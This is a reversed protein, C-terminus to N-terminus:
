RRTRRSSRRPANEAGEVPNEALWPAVKKFMQEDSEGEPDLEVARISGGAYAVVISSAHREIAPLVMKKFSELSNVSQGKVPHGDSLWPLEDLRQKNIRIGSDPNDPDVTGDSWSVYSVTKENATFVTGEEINAREDGPCHFVESVKIPGGAKTPLVVADFLPAISYWWADTENMFETDEDDAMGSAPLMNRHAMDDSYENAKMSIQKIQETCSTLDAASMRSYIFPMAVSALIGLIAIVVILEVLTFAKKRAPNHLIMSSVKDYILTM